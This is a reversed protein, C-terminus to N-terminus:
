GKGVLLDNPDLQMGYPLIIKSVGQMSPIMPFASQPLMRVELLANGRYKVFKELASTNEENNGKVDKVHDVMFYRFENQNAMNLFYREPMDLQTAVKNGKWFQGQWHDVMGLTNDRFVVVKLGHKSDTLGDKYMQWATLLSRQDMILSGDGNFVYVPTETDAIMAGIGFPIGTGMTGLGGSTILMKKGLEPNFNWFEALFMQHTGVGTTVYPEREEHKDVLKRIQKIVESPVHTPMPYKERWHNIQRIWETHKVPESNAILYDLATKADVEVKKVRKAIGSSIGPNYPELWYRVAYPAFQTPDGIVRDDLKGGIYILLDSNHIALNSEPSGHMGPLGLNLRAKSELAGLLMLTTSYPIGGLEAFQLFERVAGANYIGGGGIMMPRKSQKVDRALDELTAKEINIKNYVNPTSVEYSMLPVEDLPLLKTKQSQAIPSPLELVVPGPRGNTATYFATKLASQIEDANKIRYAWKAWHKFPQVMDAGQFAEEGEELSDISVQGITLVVPDSDSHADKIPTAANTGGPGSTVIYFGPKKGKTVANSLNNTVRAYAQIIHGLDQEHVGTVLKISPSKGLKDLLDINRGGIYVGVIEVGLMELTYRYAESGTVESGLPLREVLDDITEQELKKQENIM